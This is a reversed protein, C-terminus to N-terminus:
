GGLAAIKAQLATVIRPRNHGNKRTEETLEKQLILLLAANRANEEAPSLVPEADLERIRSVESVIQADSFQPNEQKCLFYVVPDM